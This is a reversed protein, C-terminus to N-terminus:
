ASPRSLWADLIALMRSRIGELTLGLPQIAAIQGALQPLGLGNESEIWGVFDGTRRGKRLRAECIHNFVSGRDVTALLDRFEKLSTASVELEVEIIRSRIFEFPEGHILRPVNWLSKLHDDIIGVLEGRLSELDRFEFPDLLGLRESLLRDRVSVAAWTAFDNPFLTPGHEHRLFYSHTHYYISDLPVEEIASMLEQVDTVRRGVMEHLELCGLFHFPTSTKRDGGLNTGVGAM